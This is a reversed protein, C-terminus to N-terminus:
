NQWNNRHKRKAIFDPKEKADGNIQSSTANSRDAQTGRQDVYAGGKM